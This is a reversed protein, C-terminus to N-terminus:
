NRATRHFPVLRAAHLNGRAGFISAPPTNAVRTLFSPSSERRLVRSILRSSARARARPLLLQPLASLFRRPPALSSAVTFSRSPWVYILPLSGADHVSIWENLGDTLRCDAYHRETRYRIIVSALPVEAPEGTSRRADKRRADGARVM